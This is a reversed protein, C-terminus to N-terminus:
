VDDALLPTMTCSSRGVAVLDLTADDDFHGVVFDRAELESILRVLVIEWAKQNAPSDVGSM